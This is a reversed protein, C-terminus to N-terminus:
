NPLLQNLSKSMIVMIQWIPRQYGNIETANMSFIAAIFSLPLKFLSNTSVSLNFTHLRFVFIITVTTFVLLTRGQSTTEVAEQRAYDAESVSAQKQKLDLLM